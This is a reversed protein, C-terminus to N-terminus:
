GDADEASPRRLVLVTVVLGAAVPLGILWILWTGIGASGGGTPPFLFTVAESAEATAGVSVTVSARAEEEPFTRDVFRLLWAGAEPVRLTGRYSGEAVERLDAQAVPDGDREDGAEVENAGAGGALAAVEVIADSVPSGTPHELTLRVEFPEGARPPDPELTVEGLVLTAHSWAAGSAVLSLTMLAVILRRESRM